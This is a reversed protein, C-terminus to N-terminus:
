KKKGPLAENSQIAQKYRDTFDKLKIDARVTELRGRQQTHVAVSSKQSSQIFPDLNSDPDTAVKLKWEDVVQKALAAKREAAADATENPPAPSFETRIQYEFAFALSIV